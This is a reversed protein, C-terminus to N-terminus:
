LPDARSEDHNWAEFGDDTIMMPSQVGAHGNVGGQLKCGAAVQAAFGPVIVHPAAAAASAAAAAPM